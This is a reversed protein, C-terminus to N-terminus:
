RVRRARLLRSGLLSGIGVLALLPLLSATAPLETREVRATQTPATQARETVVPEPAREAEATIAAPADVGTRDVRTMDQEAVNDAVPAETRTTLVSEGTRAALKMAQSRPYLFEHGTTRGPYFWVKVAQPGTEPGEMFRVQPEDSAKDLTYNPIALLTAHLTKRDQSMVRVVHRNTAGDALAFLYTGAPLTTGPLEVAQSFTFFTDQNPLGGQASATLPFMTAAAFTCALAVKRISTM